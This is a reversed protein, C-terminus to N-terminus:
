KKTTKTKFKGNLLTRMLDAYYLFADTYYEFSYHEDRAKKDNNRADRIISVLYNGNDPKMSIEVDYWGSYWNLKNKAM